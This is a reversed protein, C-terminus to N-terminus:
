LSDHVKFPADSSDCVAGEMRWRWSHLVLLSLVRRLRTTAVDTAPPGRAHGGPREDRAHPPRALRPRRAPPFRCKAGRAPRARPSRIARCAPRSGGACWPSSRTASSPAGRSVSGPDFDESCGFYASFSCREALGSSITISPTHVWRPQEGCSFLASALASIPPSQTAAEVAGAMAGLEVVRAAYEAARRRRGVQAHRRVGEAVVREDDAFVGLGLPCLCADRGPNHPQNSARMGDTASCHRM